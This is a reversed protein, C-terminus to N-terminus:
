RRLNQGGLAASPSFKKRARPFRNATGVPQSAFRRAAKIM